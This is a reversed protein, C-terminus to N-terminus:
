KLGADAVARVLQEGHQLRPPLHRGPLDQRQRPGGGHAAQPVLGQAREPARQPRRTQGGRPAAGCPVGGGHRACLRHAM